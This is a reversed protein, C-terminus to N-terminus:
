NRAARLFRPPSQAAAHPAEPHLEELYGTSILAAKNHRLQNLRREDEESLVDGSTRPVGFLVINRVIRMM